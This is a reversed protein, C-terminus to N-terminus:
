SLWDKNINLSPIDSRSIISKINVDMDVTTEISNWNSQVDNGYKDLYENLETVERTLITINNVNLNM